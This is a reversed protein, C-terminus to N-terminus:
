NSQRALFDKIKAVSEARGIADGVLWSRLVDKDTGIEAAVAQKTLGDRLRVTEVKRMLAAFKKREEDRRGPKRWM